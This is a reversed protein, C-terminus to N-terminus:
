ALAPGPWDSAFMAIQRRQAEDVVLDLSNARPYVEAAEWLAARVSTAVGIKVGRERLAVHLREADFLHVSDICFPRLGGRSSGAAAKPGAFVLYCDVPANLNIDLLGELKGYAKVNVTRGALLGTTFRGDYGAVNAGHELEIDFIRAAIWEGIHGVLAPRGLLAGLRADLANRQQLLVALEALEVEDRQDM